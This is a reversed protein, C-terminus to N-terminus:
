KLVYGATFNRTGRGIRRLRTRDLNKQLHTAVRSRADNFEFFLGLRMITPNHEILATIEMEAKNGLAQSLQNSARFEEVTKQVLLSKILRTVGTASLQNSELNIVRITSNKEIAKALSEVTRDSLGTNSISLVELRTNIEMARFLRHFQDDTLNINNFCLEITKLDDDKVKAIAVEPDTANPPEVPLAKPQSGKTVGDWGLGVKGKNLLSAHYQDQNMMSHFGLIAALDVLEEETATGLAQEYEEDLTFSVGDDERQVIVPAEPQIWKKGRVTGAVYPVNEPEDPTELAIKNIHDILQKRDLPGTAERDCVYNVRQSPPLFRDDPDVEKSLIELEEASLQTLLDDVDLEDFEALERGHLKKTTM